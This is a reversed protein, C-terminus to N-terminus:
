EAANQPEQQIRQQEQIWAQYNDIQGMARNFEDPDLGAEDLALMADESWTKVNEATIVIPHMFNPIVPMPPPPMKRGNEVALTKAFQEVQRNTADPNRELWSRYESLAQAKAARVAGFDSDFFGKAFFGDIMSKGVKYRDDQETEFARLITERQAASIAGTGVAGMSMEEVDDRSVGQLRAYDLLSAMVLEDQLGRDTSTAANAYVQLRSPKLANALVLLRANNLDRETPREGQGMRYLLNAEFDIGTQELEEEFQKQREKEAALEMAQMNQMISLQQQLRSRAGIREQQDLTMGDIAREIFKMAALSGEALFIGEMQQASVIEQGQNALGDLAEAGREASWGYVPDDVLIGVVNAAEGELEAYEEGMAGTIGDRELLTAMEAGIQGLRLQLADQTERVQALRTKEEIRLADRNFTNRAELEIAQMTQVDLDVGKIYEEIFSDAAQQYGEPDFEFETRMSAVAEAVDTKAQAIVGTRVVHNYIQGQRTLGARMPADLATSNDDRADSAAILDEQADIQANRELIPQLEARLARSAQALTGFLTTAAAAGGTNAVPKGARILPGQGQVDALGKM